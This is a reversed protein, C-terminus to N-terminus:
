GCVLILHVVKSALIFEVRILISYNAILFHSYEFSILLLGEWSLILRDASIYRTRDCL